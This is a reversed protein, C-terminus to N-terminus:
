VFKNVIQYLEEGTFNFIYNKPVFQFVSDQIENIEKKYKQIEYEIMKDLYEEINNEDVKINNGNLILNDGDCVFYIDLESFDDEKKIKILYEYLEKNEYQIDNLTLKENNLLKCLLQPM